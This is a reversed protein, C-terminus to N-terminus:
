HLEKENNGIRINGWLTVRWWDFTCSIWGFACCVIVNAAKREFEFGQRFTYIPVRELSSSKILLSDRAVDGQQWTNRTPSSDPPDLAGSESFFVIRRALFRKHEIVTLVFNELCGRNSFLVARELHSVCKRRSLHACQWGTLARQANASHKEVNFCVEAFRKVRTGAWSWLSPIRFGWVGWVLYWKNTM